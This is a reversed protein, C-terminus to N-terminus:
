QEVPVAPPKPVFPRANLEALRCREVLAADYKQEPWHDPRPPRM